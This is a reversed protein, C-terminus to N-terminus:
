DDVGAYCVCTGAFLTELVSLFGASLNRIDEVARRHLNQWERGTDDHFREGHVTQKFAHFFGSLMQRSGIPDCRGFGDHCRVGNGFANGLTDHQIVLFDRDGTDAFTGAHDLRM